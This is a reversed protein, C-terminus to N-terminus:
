FEARVNADILSLSQLFTLHQLKKARRCLFILTFLSFTASSIDWESHKGGAVLDWSLVFLSVCVAAGDCIFICNTAKQTDCSFHRDVHLGVAVIIRREVRGPAGAVRDNADFQAVPPAHAGFDQRQRGPVRQSVARGDRAELQEVVVVLEHQQRGIPFQLEVSIQGVVGGVLNSFITSTSKLKLKRCKYCM